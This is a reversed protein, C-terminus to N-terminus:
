AEQPQKKEIRRYFCERVIWGMYAPFIYLALYYVYVGMFNSQFNYPVDWHWLHYYMSVHEIFPATLGLGPIVFIAWFLRLPLHRLIFISLAYISLCLLNSEAIIYLPIKGGPLWFLYGREYVLVKFYYANLFEGLISTATCVFVIMLAPWSRKFIILTMVIVFVSLNLLEFYVLNM